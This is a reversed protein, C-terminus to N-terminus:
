RFNVSVTDPKPLVRYRITVTQGAAPARAPTVVGVSLLDGAKLRGGEALVQDRAFRAIELVDGLTEIAVGSETKTGDPGAITVDVAFNVLAALGEPTQPLAVEDGAVGMHAGVNLAEVQDANLSADLAYNRAPLEIFPRYGRLHSYIEERTKATNLGDDKVVLLLDSEWTAGFAYNAPATGGNPIMMKDYLFGLKPVDTRYAARAAKSYLGVKYGVLEGLGPQLAKLFASRFCRAEEAGKVDLAPIPQNALWLEVTPAVRADAPCTLATGVDAATAATAGGALTAMAIFPALLRLGRIFM